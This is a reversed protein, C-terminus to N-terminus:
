EAVNKLRFLNQRGKNPSYIGSELLLALPILFHPFRYLAEFGWQHLSSLAYDAYFNGFVRALSTAVGWFVAYVLVAKQIKVNPMFLGIAIVFDLIGATKLFWEMGEGELGLINYTMTMFTGPTPYYGIAYLGHCTFTLAIAVKMWMILQKSLSEKKFFVYLFVPVGFQLAYEFFQGFHYFKDKMYILALFILDLAGLLLLWRTWKPLHRIFIAVITCIFYFVGQGIIFKQFLEDGMPHTVYEGWTLNTFTEIGWKMFIPDWFLERYPGDWFLHQYARGAFVAIASFQILRFIPSTAKM